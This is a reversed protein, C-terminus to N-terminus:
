QSLWITDNPWSQSSAGSVIMKPWFDAALSGYKYLFAGSALVTMTMKNPWKIWFNPYTHPDYYTMPDCCRLPPWSPWKRGFILNRRAMNASFRVLRNQCDNYFRITMTVSDYIHTMKVTVHPWQTVVAVLCGLRDNPALFWSEVLWVWSFFVGTMIVTM